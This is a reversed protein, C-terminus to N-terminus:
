EVKKKIFTTFIALGTEEVWDALMTGYLGALACAPAILSPYNFHTLIGSAIYGAIICTGSHAIFRIAVVALRENRQRRFRRLISVTMGAVTPLIWNELDKYM